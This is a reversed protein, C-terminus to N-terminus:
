SKRAAESANVRYFIPIIHETDVGLLTYVKMDIHTSDNPRLLKVFLCVKLNIINTM